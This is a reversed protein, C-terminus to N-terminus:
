GNIEKLQRAFDEMLTQSIWQIAYAEQESGPTKEGIWDRYSQWVHVAEHVLMAAVFPGDRGQWANICAICLPDGTEHDFVHTRAGSKPAWDGGPRAKVKAVAELFAEESLCLALFPGPPTIHRDLWTTM